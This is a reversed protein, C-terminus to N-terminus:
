INWLINKQKLKEKIYDNNLLKKEIQEVTLINTNYSNYTEEEMFDCEEKIDNKYYNMDRNDAFVRFYDGMDESMSREEKTMLVEYMKEGHRNGIVKIGTDGFINQLAKALDGINLSDTKRIFLDGYDAKEFAFQVLSFAEDLDMFFRSMKPDTITIPQNSLIQKIFLPIVSSRSCILNGFRVCCIVTKKQEKASQAKAYAIHEMMAKSIGLVNIPYAAKDTSLCVIKKVNNELAAQLVNNTGIINTKVAEMPFFECSPIQKLAAAHFVYDVGTMSDKVSKIDRVDGIYFKIKKMHEPHTLQLKHRIDDQKKEDRSFIRIQKIDKELLHKLVTKGFSGTGGTIMLTAGSFLSM